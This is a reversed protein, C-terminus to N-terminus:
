FLFSSLNTNTGPLFPKAQCIAERFLHECVSYQTVKSPERRLSSGNQFLEKRPHAQPLLLSLVITHESQNAAVQNISMSSVNHEDRPVISGELDEESMVEEVVLTGFDDKAAVEWGVSRIEINTQVDLRDLVTHRIAASDNQNM